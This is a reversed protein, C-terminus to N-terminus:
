PSPFPFNNLQGEQSFSVCSTSADSYMIQSCAVIEDTEWGNEDLKGMLGDDSYNKAIKELPHCWKDPEHM